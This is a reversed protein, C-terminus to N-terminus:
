ALLREGFKYIDGAGITVLIDDPGLEKKLRLLMEDYDDLYEAGRSSNIAEILHRAHISPDLAERAAYIDTVFVKDASSLAAALDKLMLKTRSYLHPMFIVNIRKDPYLERLGAIASRIKGPNHAYDDYVTTGSPMEGKKELRRWTGTFSELSKRATEEEAGLAMAAAIAARANDRNHEGPVALAPREIDKYNIVRCPLGVYVPPLSPAETDCILYDEDGLKEAFARFASQIDALDKYYDLHDVDVNSIVIVKPTIHLFTRRYEDAEVVLLKSKGAIFNSRSQHLLSGVIVTPDLGADVLIKALMATTTTKGHTGCVAITFYEKSIEGLIEPYSMTRIGLERARALEPNTPQVAISYVALDTDESINDASQGIFIEAGQKTLEETVPSSSNDSGSVLKGHGLMMRAIASVGIGGIGVFHVKRINDLDM